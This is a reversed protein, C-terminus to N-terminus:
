YTERVRAKEAEPMEITDLTDALVHDLEMALVNGVFADWERESLVHAALAKTTSVFEATPLPKRREYSKVHIVNTM